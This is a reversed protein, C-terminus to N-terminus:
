VQEHNNPWGFHLKSKQLDFFLVAFFDTSEQLLLLSFANAAILSTERRRAWNNISHTYSDASLYVVRIETYGVTWILEAEM